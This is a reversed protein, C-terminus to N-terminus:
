EDHNVGMYINYTYEDSMLMHSQLEAWPKNQSLGVRVFYEKGPKIIKLYGYEYGSEIERVYTPYLEPTM